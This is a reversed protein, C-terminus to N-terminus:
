IKYRLLYKQFLEPHSKEVTSDIQNKFESSLQSSHFLLRDPNGDTKTKFRQHYKNLSIERHNDIGEIFEDLKKSNHHELFELIKELQIKPDTMLDEYYVLLKKDPDYNDFMKLLSIYNQSNPQLLTVDKLKQKENSGRHSNTCERYNRLLFVIHPKIKQKNPKLDAYYGHNYGVSIGTLTRICYSTWNNASKPYAVVYVKKVM